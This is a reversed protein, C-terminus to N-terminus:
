NFKSLNIMLYESGYKSRTGLHKGDVTNLTFFFGRM